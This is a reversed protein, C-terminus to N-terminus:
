ARRPPTCGAESAAADALLEDLYLIGEDAQADPWGEPEFSLYGSYAVARLQEVLRAYDAKGARPHCYRFPWPQRGPADAFNKVHVHVVKPALRRIAEDPDCNALLFNGADFTIRLNPRGVAELCQALEDPTHCLTGANEISLVLQREACLDAAQRLAEVYRPFAEAGSPHHQSGYSFLHPVGFDAAQDAAAQVRDLAERRVGPDAAALDARVGYVIVELGLWRIFSVAEEVSEGVRELYAPFVDVGGLGWKRADALFQRWHLVKGQADKPDTMLMYGVNM